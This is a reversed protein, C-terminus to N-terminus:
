RVIKEINETIRIWGLYSNLAARMATSDKAKITICLEDGKRHMVADTRPLSRRSEPDLSMEVSGDPDAVRLKATLM